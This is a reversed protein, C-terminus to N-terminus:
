ALECSINIHFTTKKPSDLERSSGQQLDKNNNNNNNHLTIMNFELFSFKLNALSGHLFDDLVICYVYVTFIPMLFM